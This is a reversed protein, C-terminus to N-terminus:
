GEGTRGCSEGDLPAVRQVNEASNNDASAPLLPVRERFICVGNQNLYVVVEDDGRRYLGLELERKECSM